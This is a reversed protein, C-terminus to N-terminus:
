SLRRPLAGAPAAAPMAIDSLPVLVVPRSGPMAMITLLKERLNKEIAIMITISFDIRIL